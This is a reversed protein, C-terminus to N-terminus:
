CVVAEVVRTTRNMEAGQFWGTRGPAARAFRSLPCLPAELLAISRTM